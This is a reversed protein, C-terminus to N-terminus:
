GYRNVSKAMKNRRSVVAKKKQNAQTNKKIVAFGKGKKSAMKFNPM